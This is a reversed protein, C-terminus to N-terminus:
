SINDIIVIIIQIRNESYYFSFCKSAKKFLRLRTGFKQIDENIFSCFQAKQPNRFMKKSIKIALINKARDLFAVLVM